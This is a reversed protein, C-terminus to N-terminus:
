KKSEAEFVQPSTIFEWLKYILGENQFTFSETVREQKKTDITIKNIELKIIKM